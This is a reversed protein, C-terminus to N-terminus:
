GLLQNLFEQFRFFQILCVQKKLIIYEILFPNSRLMLWLLILLNLDNILFIFLSTLLHVLIFSLIIKSELLGSSCRNGLIWTTNFVRQSLLGLSSLLLTLSRLLLLFLLLLSKTFLSFLFLLLYFFLYDLFQHWFLLHIMIPEKAIIATFWKLGPFDVPFTFLTFIKHKALLAILENNM